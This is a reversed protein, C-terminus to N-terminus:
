TKNLGQGPNPEDQPIMLYGGLGLFILVFRLFIWSAVTFTFLLTASLLELASTGVIKFFSYPAGFIVDRAMVKLSAVYSPNRRIQFLSEPLM